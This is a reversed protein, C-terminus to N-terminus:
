LKPKTTELWDRLRNFFAADDPNLGGAFRAASEAAQAMERFGAAIADRQEPTLASMIWSRELAFSGVDDSPHAPPTARGLKLTLTLKIESPM